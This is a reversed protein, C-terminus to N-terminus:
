ATEITLQYVNTEHQKFGLSKYLNNASERSPRSTLNIDKIGMGKSVQIAHLMLQKGIGQKRYNDDVVVDEIRASFGSLKRIFVLSLMGIIKNNQEEDVAIYLITNKTSIIKELDDTTIECLDDSLQKILNCIAEFISRDTYTLNQISIM